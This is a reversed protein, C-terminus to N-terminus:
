ASSTAASVHSASSSPISRKSCREDSFVQSKRMRVFLAFVRPIRSPRDNGNEDSSRFSGATSASRNVAPSWGHVPWQDAGGRPKGSSCSSAPSVRCTIASAIAARGAVCRATMESRSTSPHLASSTQLARVSLSVLWRTSRWRARAATRAASSSYRFSDVHHLSRVGVFLQGALLEDLEHRVIELARQRSLQALAEFTVDRVARATSRIEVLHSRRDARGPGQRRFRQGRLRLAREEVGEAVPLAFVSGERLSRRGSPRRRQTLCRSLVTGAL